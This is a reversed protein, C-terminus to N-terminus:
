MRQGAARRRAPAGPRRAGRDSGKMYNSVTIYLQVPFLVARIIEGKSVRDKDENGQCAILLPLFGWHTEASTQTHM